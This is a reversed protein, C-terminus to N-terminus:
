LNLRLIKKVWKRLFSRKRPVNAVFDDLRDPQVHCVMVKFLTENFSDKLSELLKRDHYDWTQSSDVVLINMVPQLRLFGSIHQQEFEPLQIVTATNSNAVQAAKEDVDQRSSKYYHVAIRDDAAHPIAQEEETQEPRLFVVEQCIAQVARAIEHSADPLAEQYRTSFVLICPAQNSRVSHLYFVMKNVLLNFLNNHLAPADINKNKIAGTNAGIADLGTQAEAKAPTRLSRDVLETAVVLGTIFFLSAIFAGLVLLRAKSPRPNLPFFPEDLLELTNFVEFNSERIRAMNLGHLVSLYEREAINIEREMKGLTFGIPAFFDFMRDFYDRQEHLVTLEARSKDLELVHTLWQNIINTRPLSETSYSLAMHEEALARVEQELAEAQDRLLALEEVDGPRGLIQLKAIQSNVDSLANRKEIIQRNNLYVKEATGLKEEVRAIAQQHADVSARKFSIDRELDERAAALYKTQENYNIIQNEQSYEKLTDEARDLRARARTLEDEFYRVIGGAEMQRLHQNKAIFTDALIQLTLFCVGPDSSRYIVEIMDSNRKRSVILGQRIVDVNYFTGSADILRTIENPKSQAYLRKIHQLTSDPHDHALLDSVLSQPLLERHVKEYNAPSIKLADPQDLWLHKALLRMAVEEIVERSEIVTMLNDFANSVAFHDVRAQEPSAVSGGSVLGTYFMMGSQYERPKQLQQYAVVGAVIVPFLVILVIKRLIAKIIVIPNLNM